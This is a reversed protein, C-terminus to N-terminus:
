ENYHRYITQGDCKMFCSCQIPIVKLSDSQAEQKGSVCRNICMQRPRRQREKEKQHWQSFHRSRDLALGERHSRIRKNEEGRPSQEQFNASEDLM